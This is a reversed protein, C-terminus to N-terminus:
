PVMMKLQSYQSSRMKLVEGIESDRIVVEDNVELPDISKTTSGLNCYSFFKKCDENCLRVLDLM